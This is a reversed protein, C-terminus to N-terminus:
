GYSQGEDLVAFILIRGPSIMNLFLILGEDEHPLYTDYFRHAMLAGTAQSLSATILEM